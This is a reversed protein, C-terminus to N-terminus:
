QALLTILYTQLLAFQCVMLEDKIIQALDLKLVDGLIIKVNDFDALTEQLLSPLRDDIELSVVKKASIALQKTLVGIGPGVELVGWEKDIQANDVIKPCIGANIIFNQGFGKSLSFGYRDCLSRIYSIDTLNKNM